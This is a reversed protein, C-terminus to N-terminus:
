PFLVVKKEDILFWMVSQLPLGKENIKFFLIKQSPPLLLAQLSCHTVRKQQLRLWRAKKGDSLFGCTGKQYHTFAFIMRFTTSSSCVQFAIKRRSMTLQAEEGGWGQRTTYVGGGAYQWQSSRGWCWDKNGVVRALRQTARCVSFGTQEATTWKDCEAHRAAFMLPISVQLVEAVSMGFCSILALTRKQTIELCHKNLTLKYWNCLNEWNMEWNMLKKRLYSLQSETHWDDCAYKITCVMSTKRIVLIWCTSFPLMISIQCGTTLKRGM